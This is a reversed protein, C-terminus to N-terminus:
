LINCTVNIDLISTSAIAEVRHYFRLFDRECREFLGVFDPVMDRYTAIAALRANNIPQSFWHNYWSRNNWKQQQLNKHSQRLGAFITQKAQRKEEVTLGQQYLTKLDSKARNIIVM